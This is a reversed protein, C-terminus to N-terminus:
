QRGAAGRGRLAPLWLRDDDVRLMLLGHELLALVLLTAPLLAAARAAADQGAAGALGAFLAIGALAGAVSWPFLGNMPRERVYSKLYVLHAPWYEQHLNRVGLFINLKASWRMLWLVLFTMLATRNVSQWTLAALLAATAVIALEHYLCTAVGHRFRRWGGAGPPCAVPRPGSVFGLLYSVEHWAWIALGAAFGAYAAALGGDDRTRVVVVLGAVLAVSAAALTARYSRAPLSARYLLLLTSLWWAAVATLIPLAVDM